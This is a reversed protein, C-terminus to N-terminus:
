LVRLALGLSPVTGGEGPMSVYPATQEDIRIIEHATLMALRAEFGAEWLSTKVTLVIVGNPRCIRILEDLGDAGVHGTTFVGSSVIGAFCNDAFPLEQGLALRHLRAYTGKRAAIALMGESLDLAELPGYGLIGLWDGLVGTGAGADLIPGEGRALHRTLLALCISPHRYGATAM